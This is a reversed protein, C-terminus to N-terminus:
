GGTLRKIGTTVPEIEGLKGSADSKERLKDAAGYLLVAIGVSEPQTEKIQDCSLVGCNPHPTCYGLCSSLGRNSSSDTSGIRSGALGGLDVPMAPKAVM